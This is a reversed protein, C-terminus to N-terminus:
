TDHRTLKLSPDLKVGTLIPIPSSHDFAISLLNIVTIYRHRITLYSDKITPDRLPQLPLPITVRM